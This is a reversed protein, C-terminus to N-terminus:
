NCVGGIQGGYKPLSLLGKNLFPFYFLAIPVQQCYDHSTLSVLVSTPLSIHSSMPSVGRSPLGPENLFQLHPLFTWIIIVINSISFSQLSCEM